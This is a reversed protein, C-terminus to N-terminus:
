TSNVKQLVLMEVVMVLREQQFPQRELVQYTCFGYTINDFNLVTLYLLALGFGANRTPHAMYIKWPKFTNRMGTLASTWLESWSLTKNSFIIISFHSLYDVIFTFIM